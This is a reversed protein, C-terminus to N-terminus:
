ANTLHLKTLVRTMSLTDSLARIFKDIQPRTVTLPPMIRLVDYNNLTFAAIIKHKRLLQRVVWLTIAGEILPGKGKIRSFHVGIMLGKGRVEKIVSYKKKIDQLQSILYSGQKLANDAINDSITANLAAIGCACARSNGGFTSTHLLCTELSGYAKKWIKDTTIAAGIPMVGGGLSKSLCLIDPEVNEYECCFLKGTRGMGTQVEDVIFLAGLERCLQQAKKLYGNRPVIVGAEGQIPEVIFAAVGGEKLVKRLADINDYPIIKIGPLLPMFPEKFKNKGSVSLAGFTKGHYANETSVLIKKGTACRALKIAAEVSEAGSNCFFVRSLRGPTVVALFEALKAAYPNLSVQLYNPQREVCKLAELVPQPEHGLNLSGFGSLFDMYTNGKVDTLYIGNAKIFRRDAGIFRSVWASVPNLYKRHLRTNENSSLREANLTTFYSKLQKSHGNFM